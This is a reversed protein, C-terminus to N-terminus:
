QQHLYASCERGFVVFHQHDVVAAAVVGQAYQLVQFTLAVPLQADQTVVTRQALAGRQPMGGLRGAAM